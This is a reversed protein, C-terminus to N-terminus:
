DRPGGGMLLAMLDHAPQNNIQASSFGQQQQQQQHQQQQQIHQSLMHPPIQMQPPNQPQQRASFGQTSLQNPIHQPPFSAQGGTRLNTNFNGPNQPVNAIRPDIGNIHTMGPVLNINGPVSHQPGLLQNRLANNSSSVYGQANGTFNNFNQQQQIPSSGHMLGGPNINLFHSPDHPPRGGLNALGPPIRQQSNPLMTQNHLPSPGGRFQVQGQVPLSPNRGIAIQQNYMPNNYLQDVGRQAQQNILRQNTYSPDDLTEYESQRTRQPLSRLGPVMGDPVFSRDDLRSDYLPELRQNHGVFSQQALMQQQQQQLHHHQIQQPLRQQQQHLQQLQQLQQQQPLNAPLVQTQGLGSSAQSGMVSSGGLRQPGNSSNLMAFLDNVARDGGAGENFGSPEQRLSRPQALASSGPVKVVGERNKGEFYKAFRSGPNGPIPQTVRSENGIVKDEFGLAPREEFPSFSQSTHRSIEPSSSQANEARLNLSQHLSQVTMGSAVSGPSPSLITSNLMPADATHSSLSSGRLSLLRSGAPPQPVPNSSIGDGVLDAKSTLYKSSEAGSSMSGGVTATHNVQGAQLNSIDHPPIPSNNSSQQTFPIAPDSQVPQPAPNGAEIPDIQKKGEERKMIMKFLQIEDMPKSPADSPPVPLPELPQKVSDLKSQQLAKEREEKEKMGKKWAQIGDLGGDAARAGLIGPGIINSDDSDMWAPEKEREREKGEDAGPRRDRASGRKQRGEGDGGNWRTDWANDHPPKDRLRDKDEALRERRLAMREDRKGDDRWRRPDEQESDDRERRHDDRDKRYDEKDGRRARDRDKDDKRSSSPDRRTRSSDRPRSRAREREERDKRAEERGTRGLPERRWDELEGVKKKGSERTDGRRPQAGNTSNNARSNPHSPLHPAGDREKHRANTSPHALRDRDYKDSLNRLREQGDRDRDKDVDRDRERDREPNRLSHHKFNGMQSPQSLATRFSPRSPMDGDNEADRRLRRDRPNNSQTSDVEKKTPPQDLELSGFWSKLDPMDTPPKVLPSNHLKLLQAQSYVILPKMAQTSADTPKDASGETNDDLKLSETTNIVDQLPNAPTKETQTHLISENTAMTQAILKHHCALLCTL